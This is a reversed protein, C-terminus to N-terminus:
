ADNRAQRNHLQPPARELDKPPQAPQPMAYFKPEQDDESREFPLRM